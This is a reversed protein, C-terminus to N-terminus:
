NEFISFIVNPVDTVYMLETNSTIKYTGPLM